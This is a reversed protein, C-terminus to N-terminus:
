IWLDAMHSSESYSKNLVTCSRTLIPRCGRFSSGRWLDPNLLCDQGLLLFKPAHVLRRWPISDRHPWSLTLLWQQRTTSSPRRPRCSHWSGHSLCWQCSSSYRWIVAPLTRPQQFLPSYRSSLRYTALFRCGRLIWRFRQWQWRLGVCSTQRITRLVAERRPFMRIVTCSCPLENITQSSNSCFQSPLLGAPSQAPWSRRGPFQAM